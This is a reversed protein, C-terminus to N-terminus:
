NNKWSLIQWGYRKCRRKLPRDPNVAYAKEAAWLLAEDSYHDSYAHTLVWGDKGYTQNAYEKLVRLKESGEVPIGQVKCTYCGQEDVQMRTAFYRTYGHHRCAEDIIPEFSASVVWVERGETRHREIEKDAASRFRTEVKKNYFDYIFEDVEEKPKGEFATFVLSRVWSENQPLRFKYAFAWIGICFLTSFRLMGRFWLHWVLAIPSNGKICTGDFDFVAVEVPKNTSLSHTM